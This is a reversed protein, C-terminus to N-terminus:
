TLPTDVHKLQDAEVAVVRQPVALIIVLLRVRCEGGNDTAVDIKSIVAHLGVHQRGLLAIELQEAVTGLAHRQRHHFRRDRHSPLANRCAIDMPDDLKALRHQLM